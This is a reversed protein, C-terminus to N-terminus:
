TFSINLLYTTFNKRSTKELQGLTANFASTSQLMFCLSLCGLSALGSPQQSVGSDGVQGAAPTLLCHPTVASVTLSLSSKLTGMQPQRPSNQKPLLESSLVALTTTTLLSLNIMFPSIYQLCYKVSHCLM